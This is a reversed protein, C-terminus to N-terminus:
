HRTTNKTETITEFMKLRLQDRMPKSWKENSGLVKDVGQRIIEALNESVIKRESLRGAKFCRLGWWVGLASIAFWAVLVAVVIQFTTVFEVQPCKRRRGPAPGM